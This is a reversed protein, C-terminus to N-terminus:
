ISHYSFDYLFFFSVLAIGQEKKRFTVVAFQLTERHRGIIFLFLM